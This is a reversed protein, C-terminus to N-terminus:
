WGDGMTLCVRVKGELHKFTARLTSSSAKNFCVYVNKKELLTICQEVTIRLVRIVEVTDSDLASLPWRDCPAGQGLM